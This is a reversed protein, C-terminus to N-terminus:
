GQKFGWPARHEKTLLANGEDDGRVTESEPDFHLVRGTRYAADGLHVLACSLHAVDADANPAAGARISDIFNAVHEENGAGGRMGPGQEEKAGLYTQFYGRRSFVMYGETGYFVNGNDYGHLKYPAFNRNEYVLVRGDAYEWTVLMNDPFDSEGKLHARSGQATVRVPHTKVGLGWRAMDIDHIGDGGIEGNGYDRCSNWRRFRNPNFPREPAPGLWFNYDLYEPPEGDPAPAPHHPRPEVGWAKAQKIEGLVGSALVKGAEATVPSSRMQTGHQVVRKARRAAEALLRGERLVHSAPKEVYVHKGAELARVAIPVHWHHPTAVVVADISRDDLVRRFDGFTKVSKNQREGAARAGRGLNQSNVDCVAAFAAHKHGLMLNM